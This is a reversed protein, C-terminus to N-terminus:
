KSLITFNTLESCIYYKLFMRVKMTIVGDREKEGTYTVGYNRCAEVIAKEDPSSANYILKEYQRNNNEVGKPLSAQVTHCLALSELFKRIKREKPLIDDDLILCKQEDHFRSGDISCKKFEMVNQTLTGTKDSFLYEVQFIFHFAISNKPFTLFINVQGLEENLDSSNCKAPQNTDPDYLQIDWTLFLAGIFKQLEITVYLSIPIIYNFLM